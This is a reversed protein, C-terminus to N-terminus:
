NYNISYKLKENEINSKNYSMLNVPENYSKNYLANSVNDQLILYDVDKIKENFDNKMFRVQKQIDAIKKEFESQRIDLIKLKVTLEKFDDVKLTNEVYDNIQMRTNQRVVLSKKSSINVVFIGAFGLLFSFIIIFATM